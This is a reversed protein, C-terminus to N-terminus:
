EIRLEAIGTSVASPVRKAEMSLPTTTTSTTNAQGPTPEQHHAGQFSAVVREDLGGYQDGCHKRM